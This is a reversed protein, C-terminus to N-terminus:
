FFMDFFKATCTICKWLIACVAVALIVSLKENVGVLETTLPEIDVAEMTGATQLAANFPDAQLMESVANGDSVSAKVTESTEGAKELSEKEPLPESSGVALSAESETIETSDLTETVAENM